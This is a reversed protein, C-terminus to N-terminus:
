WEMVVVVFLLLVAWIWFLGLPPPLTASAFPLQLTATFRRLRRASADGNRDAFQPTATAIPSSLRRRQSRRASADGNRDALQPTTDGNRDAFQPMADGNRDAGHITADGHITAFLSKVFCSPNNCFDFSGFMSYMLCWKALSHAAENAERPVWRFSLFPLNSALFKVSQIVNEITWLIEMDHVTISKYCVQSDGELMIPASNLPKALQVAWLLAEAKAQLPLTTNVKKSSAFVLEGRWDKAIVAVVFHRAGVAADVNLKFSGNGPKLWKAQVSNGRVIAAVRWLVMKLREHIRTKWIQGRLMDQNPPPNSSRGLWYTSKVSLKGSVSKTWIWKDFHVNLPLLIRCISAVTADDFISRLKSFDWRTKSCDLLQSVAIVGDMSANERLTPWFHPLNPIWPDEWIRLTNGSGILMYAGQAILQKIGELSKWVLSICGSAEHNLWNNRVKYKARLLSICLCDKGELLWWALKALLAQNFEWFKRFGLGGAKLPWCLLDWAIPSSYSGKDSKPNWWFRRVIADLQDYLGKPFLLVSMSYFPIAQAVSKILTAHGAWSLNKSKWSSLKNEIM